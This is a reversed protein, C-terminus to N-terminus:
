RGSHCAEAPRHAMSSGFASLDDNCPTFPPSFWRSVKRELRRIPPSGYQRPVLDDNGGDLKM